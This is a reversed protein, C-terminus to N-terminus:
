YEAGYMKLLHVYRPHNLKALYLATKSTRSIINVDTGNKLLLVIILYRNPIYKDTLAKMLPTYGYKKDVVNPNAGRRLLSILANANGYEVAYMIPYAGHSDGCNLDINNILLEHITETDNIAIATNLEDIKRINRSSKKKRIM